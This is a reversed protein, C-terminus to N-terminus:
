LPGHAEELPGINAFGERKNSPRGKQTEPARLHESLTGERPPWSAALLVGDELRESLAQSSWPGAPAGVFNVLQAVAKLDAGTFSSRAWEDGYKLSGKAMSFRSCIALPNM